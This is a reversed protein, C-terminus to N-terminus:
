GRTESTINNFDYYYLVSDIRVQNKIQNCIRSVWDMDEGFNISPFMISKAIASKFVMTHAPRGTWINPPSAYNYSYEIGYKCVQSIGDVTCISDFVICDALPNNNITSIIKNIYDDSIRDDDDIFTLFQGRALNLLDNRKEGVTRKKNDYLVIVEIDNTNIQSELQDLIRQLFTKRRSPVSPILISLKLM